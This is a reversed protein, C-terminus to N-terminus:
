PAGDAALSDALRGCHAARRWYSDFDFDPSWRSSHCSRCSIRAAEEYSGKREHMTGPGHCAECQVGHLYPAGEKEAEPSYGTPRGYGTTHCPLCSPNADEGRVRLTEMARFHRSLIFRPMLGGHCRACVDVGVYREIVRGTRKDRALARSLSLERRREGEESLFARLREATAPDDPVAADLDLLRREVLAAREGKAAAIVALGIARARDGVFLVSRAADDFIGGTTDACDGAAHEVEAAHARIVLDAGAFAPLMDGLQQRGMHALLIIYDARGRLREIAARGEEAPDRLEVEDSERPATGLVAVIGVRKGHVKKVLFPPFVRGAGEFLNACILPLGRKADAKLTRLGFNLDREGVAIADYGLDIMTGALFRARYMELIGREASFDGASLLLLDPDGGRLEKIKAARRAM